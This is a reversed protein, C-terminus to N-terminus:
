SLLHKRILNLVTNRSSEEVNGRSDYEVYIDKKDDYRFESFCSYTRMFANEGFVSNSPEKSLIYISKDGVLHMGQDDGTYEVLYRKTNDSFTYGEMVYVDVMEKKKINGFISDEIKVRLCSWPLGNCDFYVIDEVVGEIVEDCDKIFNQIEPKKEMCMNTPDNLNLNITDIIKKDEIDIKEIPIKNSFVSEEVNTDSEEIYNNEKWYNIVDEKNKLTDLDVNDDILLYSYDLKRYIMGSVKIKEKHDNFFLTIPENYIIFIGENGEKLSSSTYEVGIFIWYEKGKKLDGYISYRNEIRVLYANYKFKKDDKGDTDLCVIPKTEKVKGYIIMEDDAGFLQEETYKNTEYCGESYMRSEYNLYAKVSGDSYAELTRQGYFHIYLQWGTISLLIFILSVCIIKKRKKM